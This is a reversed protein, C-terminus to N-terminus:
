VTPYLESHHRCQSCDPSAEKVNPRAFAQRESRELLADAGWAAPFPNGCTVAVAWETRNRGGLCAFGVKSESMRGKAVFYCPESFDYNSGRVGATGKQPTRRKSANLFAAQLVLRM